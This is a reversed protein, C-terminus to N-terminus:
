ADYVEEPSCGQLGWSAALWQSFDWAYDLQHNWGMQFSHKDFQIM